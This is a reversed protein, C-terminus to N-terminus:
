EPGGCLITTGLPTGVGVGGLVWQDWSPRAVLQSTYGGGEFVDTRQQVTLPTSLVLGNKDQITIRDLPELRPDGPIELEEFVVQERRLLGLLGWAVGLAFGQTQIWPNDPVTLPAANFEDISAQDRVEVPETRSTALYRASVTVAPDGTTPDTLYLGGPTRNELLLTISTSNNVTLTARLSADPSTSISYWAGPGPAVTPGGWGSVKPVSVIPGDLVITQTLSQGAGLLVVSNLSWVPASAVLNIQTYPCRIINRIMDRDDRYALALLQRETTLTRVSTLADATNLRAATWLKPRGDVDIWVLGREAAYVDQLLDWAEQPEDPPFIGVLRRNQPRDVDAGATWTTPQWADAAALGSTVQLEASPVFIRWDFRVANSVPPATSSIPTYAVTNSVGDRRFTAVGAVDDWHVGFLHWQGDHTYTPGVITRLTAGGGSLKLQSTGDRRIRFEVNNDSTLGPVGSGEAFLDLYVARDANSPLAPVKAWVEIRGSSRGLSDWVAAGTDTLNGAVQTFAAATDTPEFASAMFFPADTDFTCKRRGTASVSGTPSTSANLMTAGTRSIMPMASGHMPVWLRCGVRPTPSLTLGCRWLAFSVVWAAELGPSAPGEFTDTRDDAVFAPLNVLERLQDRTDLLELSASRDAVSVPLSRSVGRLLPVSEFGAATLFEVDLRADRSARPKGYLPSNPNLRSWYAVAHLQEDDTKGVVLDGSATAAQDGEVILVDQPLQGTLARTVTLRSLKPTIDDISGPGGHGDGDWDISGTPHVTRDPSEIAAALSSTVARM